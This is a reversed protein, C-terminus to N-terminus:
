TPAFRPSPGRTRVREKRSFPELRSQDVSEYRRITAHM